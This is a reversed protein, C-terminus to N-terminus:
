EGCDHCDEECECDNDCVCGEEDYGCEECENRIANFPNYGISGGEKEELWKVVEPNDTLLAVNDESIEGYVESHKGLVEGFYAEQGILKDIQEPTAVFIGYLTGYYDGFTFEYVNKAM